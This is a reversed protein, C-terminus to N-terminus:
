YNLTIEKTSNAPVFFDTQLLINNEQKITIRNQMDGIGEITVPSGVMYHLLVGSSFSKKVSGDKLIASVELVLNDYNRSPNKNIKIEAVKFLSFTRKSGSTEELFAKNIDGADYYGAKRIELNGPITINGNFEGNTNTSGIKTETITWYCLCSIDFDSRQIKILEAGAVPQGSVYDKVIITPNASDPKSKSCAIQAFVGFLALLKIYKM